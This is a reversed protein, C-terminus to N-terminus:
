GDHTAGCGGARHSVCVHTCYQRTHEALMHATCWNHNIAHLTCCGSGYQVADADAGDTEVLLCVDAAL